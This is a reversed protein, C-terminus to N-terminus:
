FHPDSQFLSINIKFENLMYGSFPIWSASSSHKALSCFLPFKCLCFCWPWLWNYFNNTLFSLQLQCSALSSTLCPNTPTQFTRMTVLPLGQSWLTAASLHELVGPSTSPNSLNWPFNLNENTCSCFSVLYETATM